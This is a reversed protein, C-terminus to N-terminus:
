KRSGLAIRKPLLPHSSMTTYSRTKLLSETARWGLPAHNSSAFLNGFFHVPSPHPTIRAGLPAFSSSSQPTPFVIPALNLLPALLPRSSQSASASVDPRNGLPVHTPSVERALTALPPLPFLIPAQQALNTGFPAHPIHAEAYTSSCAGQSSLGPSQAYSTATLSRVFHTTIPHAVLDITEAILTSLTSNDFSSQTCSITTLNNDAFTADRPPASARCASSDMTSQTIPVVEERLPPASPIELTTPAMAINRSSQARVLHRCSAPKEEEEDHSWLYVTIAGCIITTWLAATSATAVLAIAAFTTLALSLAKATTLLMSKNKAQEIKLSPPARHAEVAQIM